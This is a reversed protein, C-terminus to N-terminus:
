SSARPAGQGTGAGAWCALDPASRRNPDTLEGSAVNPSIQGSSVRPPEYWPLAGLDRCVGTRPRPINTVERSRDGTQPPIAQCAQCAIGAHKVPQWPRYRVGSLGQACAPASISFLVAPHPPEGGRCGASADAESRQDCAHASFKGPAATCPLPAEGGGDGEAGAGNGAAGAGMDGTATWGRGGASGAVGGGVASGASGGGHFTGATGSGHSTGAPGGGGSSGAAGGATGPVGRATAPGPGRTAADCRWCCARLGRPAPGCAGSGSSAPGPRLDPLRPVASSHAM